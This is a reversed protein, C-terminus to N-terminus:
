LISPLGKTPPGTLVEGTITYRGGHCPCDWTCEAANFNVICGAHTCVPSLAHIAGAEDRYVAMKEGDLNVIKGTGPKLRQLSDTEAAGFRDAVFHYAVDANEKIFELFGDIPKLRSSSFLNEYRNEVGLVKDALIKASISGLIMGTIYFVILGIYGNIGVGDRPIYCM